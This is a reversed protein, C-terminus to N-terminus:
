DCANIRLLAADGQRDVVEFGDQGVLDDFGPMVWRGPYVEGPGFDLVYRADFEDLAPCVSPDVAVDRLSEGLVWYAASSPAAWTRPIVNRGSVAYGFSMATSPNGIVVADPPLLDDLRQLVALEDVSLFSTATTEYLNPDIRHVFVDRRQIQPAVILVCVGIAAVVALGATAARQRRVGTRSAFWMVTAGVGAGALPLLFAPMIAALRYPDEYWPGVLLKRLPGNGLSAAVIYLFACAAAAVVIWRGAHRRVCVATGIAAAVSVGIVAPYGLYGTALVEFVAGTKSVTPPWSASVSRSFYVWAVGLTVAVALAGTATIIRIPVSSVRWGDRAGLVLWCLVALGVALLLSPQAFAIAGLAAGSLLAGRVIPLRERESSRQWMQSDVAVAVAVPLVAGALLQPYLVGWQLLVLPFAPVAAAAAAACAAAVQGVVTRTLYAIGLPWAISAIALSTINAAVEIQAGSALAVTAALVHWGSPYFSHAGIVRSIELPSAAGTELVFRLASLHFAADNTQSIAGPDAIYFALRCAVLVFGVVVGAIVLRPRGSSSGVPHWRCLGAVGAAGAAAVFSVAVASALSWPVGIAGTVLAGGTLISVSLAPALAWLALGRVRALAGVALGPGLLVVVAALMATWQAAWAEM